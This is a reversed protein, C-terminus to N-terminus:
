QLEQDQLERFFPRIPARNRPNPEVEWIEGNIFTYVNANMNIDLIFCHGDRMTYVTVLNLRPYKISRFLGILSCMRFLNLFLPDNQRILSKIAELTMVRRASGLESLFEARINDSARIIKNRLSTTTTIRRDELLKALNEGKIEPADIGTEASIESQMMKQYEIKERIELNPNDREPTALMYAMKKKARKMHVNTILVQNVYDDLETAFVNALALSMLICLLNM